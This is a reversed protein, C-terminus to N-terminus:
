ALSNGKTILELLQMEVISFKILLSLEVYIHNETSHNYEKFDCNIGDKLKILHM